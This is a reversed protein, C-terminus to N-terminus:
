NRPRGAPRRPRRPQPDPDRVLLDQVYELGWAYMAYGFLFGGAGLLLSGPLGWMLWGLAAGLAAWRLNLLFGLIPATRAGVALLWILIYALVGALVSQFTLGLGISFMLFDKSMFSFAQSGVAAQINGARNDRISM